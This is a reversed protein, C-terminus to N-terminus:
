TPIPYNPSQAATLTTPVNRFIRDADPRSLAGLWAGRLQCASLHALCRHFAPEPVRQLDHYPKRHIVEAHAWPSRSRCRWAHCFWDAETGRWRPCYQGIGTPSSASSPRERLLFEPGTSPRTRRASDSVMESKDSGPMKTFVRPVTPM